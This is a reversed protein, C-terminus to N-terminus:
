PCYKGYNIYDGYCKIGTALSRDWITHDSNEEEETILAPVRWQFVGQTDDVGFDRRRPAAPIFDTKTKQTMSHFSDARDPYHKSAIHSPISKCSTIIQGDQNSGNTKVKGHLVNDSTADSYFRPVQNGPKPKNKWNAKSNPKNGGVDTASVM